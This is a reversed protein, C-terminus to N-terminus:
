STWCHICVELGTAAAQVSGSCPPLLKKQSVTFSLIRCCLMWLSSLSGVIAEQLTGLSLYAGTQHVRQAFLRQQPTTHVPRTPMDCQESGMHAPVYRTSSWHFKSTCLGSLKMEFQEIDRRWLYVELIKKHKLLIIKLQNIHHSEGAERMTESSAQLM